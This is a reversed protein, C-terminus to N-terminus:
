IKKGRICMAKKSYLAEDPTIGDLAVAEMPSRNRLYAAISVAETWFKHSLKTDVDLLMNRTMELLTHNLREALGINKSNDTQASNSM